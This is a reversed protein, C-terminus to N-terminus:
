DYLDENENNLLVEHSNTLACKIICRLKEGVDETM